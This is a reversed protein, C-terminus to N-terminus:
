RMGKANVLVFTAVERLVKYRTSSNDGSCVVIDGTELAETLQERIAETKCEVHLETLARSGNKSIYPADDHWRCDADHFDIEREKRFVKKNPSCAEAESRLFMLRVGGSRPVRQIDAGAARMCKRAHSLSCGIIRAAEATGIREDPM